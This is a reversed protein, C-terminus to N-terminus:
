IIGMKVVKKNYTLMKEGICQFVIPPMFGAQNLYRKNTEYRCHHINDMNVPLMVRCNTFM